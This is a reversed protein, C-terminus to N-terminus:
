DLFNLFKKINLRQLDNIEKSRLMTTLEREIEIIEGEHFTNEVTLVISLLDDTDIANVIKSLKNALIGADM